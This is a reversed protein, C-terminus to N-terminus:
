ADDHQCSPMPALVRGNQDSCLATASFLLFRRRTLVQVLYHTDLPVCGLGFDLLGELLQCDFVMRVLILVIRIGGFFFELLYCVGIFDEGIFIFPANIILLSFFADALMFSAMPLLSAALMEVIHIEIVDERVEESTTTTSAPTSTTTRATAARVEIEVHATASKILLLMVLMLLM